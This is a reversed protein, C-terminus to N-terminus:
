RMKNNKRVSKYIVPVITLIALGMLPILISPALLIKMGNAPEAAIIKDLGRGVLVYILTAPTVGIITALVFTRVPVNLVGASINSLWCPFVPVLRMMLLYHFANKQFGKEIKKIWNSRQAAIRAGFASRVAYFLILGGAVTGFLVYFFADAGFLFGGLLTMITGGPIACAIMVTYILLFLGIAAMYHSSTWASVDTQYTKIAAFTLYDYLEFYFFAISLLCLLWLLTWKKLILILRNLLSIDNM